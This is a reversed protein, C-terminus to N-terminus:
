LARPCALAALPCRHHHCQCRRRRQSACGRLRWSPSCRCRTHACWQAASSHTARPAPPPRYQGCLTRGAARLDCCCGLTWSPGPHAHAVVHSTNSAQPRVGGGVRACCRSGPQHRRPAPGPRSPLASTGGRRRWCAARGQWHGGCTPPADQSRSGQPLHPRAAPSAAAQM